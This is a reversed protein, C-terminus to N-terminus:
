SKTASGSEISSESFFDVAGKIERLDSEEWDIDDDTRPGPNEGERNPYNLILKANDILAGYISSDNEEKESLIQEQEKLLDDLQRKLDEENSPKSRLQIKIMSIRESIIESFSNIETFQARIMDLSRQGQRFKRVLKLKPAKVTCSIVNGDKDILKPNYKEM